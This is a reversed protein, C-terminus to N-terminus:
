LQRKQVLFIEVRNHLFLGNQEALCVSVVSLRVNAILNSSRFLTTYPFLTSRPPRRIMLFVFCFLVLLVLCGLSKGYECGRVGDGGGGRDGSERGRARGTAGSGAPQLTRVENVTLIGALVMLAVLMSLSGYPSTRLSNTM